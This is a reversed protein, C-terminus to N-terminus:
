GRDHQCAQIVSNLTEAIRDADGADFALVPFRKLSSRAIAFPETEEFYNVPNWEHEQETTDGVDALLLSVPAGPFKMEKLKELIVFKKVPTKEILASVFRDYRSQWLPSRPFGNALRGHPPTFAIKIYEAADFIKISNPDLGNFNLFYAVHGTQDKQYSGDPDKRLLTEKVDLTASFFCEGEYKFQQMPEPQAIVDALAPHLTPMVGSLVGFTRNCGADSALFCQRFNQFAIERYMQKATRPSVQGADAVADERFEEPQADNFTALFTEQASRIFDDTTRLAKMLVQLGTPATALNRPAKPQAIQGGAKDPTAAPALATSPPTASPHDTPARATLPEPSIASADVAAFRLAGRGKQDYSAVWVFGAGGGLRYIPLGEKASRGFNGIFDIFYGKTTPRKGEALRQVSEADLPELVVKGWTALVANPLELRRPRTITRPQEGIRRSHRQIDQEAEDPGFYAPAQFRNLYVIRGDRGHLISHTATFPGRRERDQRTRQCWTFGDFQDSPGCKYERYSASDFQVRGGLTLGSVSYPPGPPQPQALQSQCGSRIGAIRPDSPTVGRETLADVSGGQQQLADDICGMENPAIRNWESRAATQAIADQPAGFIRSFDDTAQAFALSAASSLLALVGVWRPL